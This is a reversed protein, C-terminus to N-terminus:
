VAALERRRSRPSKKGARAALMQDLLGPMAAEVYDRRVRYFYHRGHKRLEILGAQYLNKIHYSITSKSIPLTDDLITCALEPGEAIRLLIDLRIPESLAGFIAAYRDVADEDRLVAKRFDDRVM